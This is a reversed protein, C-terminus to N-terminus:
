PHQRPGRGVPRGNSVCAGLASPAMVKHSLVRETEGARLVGCDDISDAGAVM